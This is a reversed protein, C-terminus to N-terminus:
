YRRLDSVVQILPGLTSFRVLICVTVTDPFVGYMVFLIFYRSTAQIYYNITLEALSLHKSTSLEQREGISVLSGSGPEDPNWIM